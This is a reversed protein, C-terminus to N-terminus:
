DNNVGLNIAELICHCTALDRARCFEKYIDDEGKIALIATEGDEPDFIIFDDKM